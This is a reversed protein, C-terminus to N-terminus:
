FIIYSVCKNQNKTLIDLLISVGYVFLNIRTEKVEELHLEQM